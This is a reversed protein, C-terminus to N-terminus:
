QVPAYDKPGPGVWQFTVGNQVVRSAVGAPPVKGAVPASSSLKNLLQADERPVVDGIASGEQSLFQKITPAAAQVQGLYVPEVAEKFSIRQEPTLIQGTRVQNYWSLIKDPVGRANKATAYEGERVTSGPDLIKMWSFVAGQDRAASPEATPDLLRELKYYAAQVKRLDQIEQRTGYEKQLAAAAQRDKAPAEAALKASQELVTPLAKLKAAQVGQREKESEIRSRLIEAYRPDGPKVPEMKKSQQVEYNAYERRIAPDNAAEARIKNEFQARLQDPTPHQAVQARLTNEFQARAQNDEKSNLPFGSVFTNVQEVVKEEPDRDDLTTGFENVTKDITKGHTENFWEEFPKPAEPAPLNLTKPAPHGLYKEHERKLRDLEEAQRVEEVDSAAAAEHRQAQLRAQQDALTIDTAGPLIQGAALIQNAQLGQSAQANAFAGPALRRQFDSAQLQTKEADNSLRDQQFRRQIDETTIFGQRFADQLDAVAPTIQLETGLSAIPAVQIATPRDQAIGPM